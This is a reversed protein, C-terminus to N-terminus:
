AVFFICYVLYPEREVLWLAFGRTLITERAHVAIANVVANPALRAAAALAFVARKLVCIPAGAVRFCAFLFPSNKLADSISTFGLL